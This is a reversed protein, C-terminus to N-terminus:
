SFKLRFHVLFFTGKFNWNHIFPDAVNEDRGFLFLLRRFLEGEALFVGTHSRQLLILAPLTLSVDTQFVLHARIIQTKATNSSHTKWCFSNLGNKEM